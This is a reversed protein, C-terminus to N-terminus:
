FLWFYYQSIFLLCTDSQSQGICILSTVSQTICGKVTLLFGTEPAESVIKIEQTHTITTRRSFLNIQTVDCSTSDVPALTSSQIFADTLHWTQKKEFLFFFYILIM